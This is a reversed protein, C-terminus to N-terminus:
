PSKRMFADEANVEVFECYDSNPKENHMKIIMQLSTHTHVCTCACTHTYACTCTCLHRHLDTATM